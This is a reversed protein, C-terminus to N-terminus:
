EFEGHWMVQKYDTSNKVNTNELVQEQMHIHSCAHINSYYLASYM